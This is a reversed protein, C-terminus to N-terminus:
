KKPRKTLVSDLAERLSERSDADQIPRKIAINEKILDGVYNLLQSNQLIIQKKEATNIEIEAKLRYVEQSLQALTETQYKMIDHLQQNDELLSLNIQYLSEPSLINRIEDPSLVNTIEQASPFTYDTFSSISSSAIESLKTEDIIENLFDNTMCEFYQLNFHLLYLIFYITLKLLFNYHGTLTLHSTFLIRKKM